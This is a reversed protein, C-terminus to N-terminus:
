TTRTVKALGQPTDPNVGLSAALRDTLLQGPLVYALPTLAEPLEITLGLARDRARAHVGGILWPRAGRVEAALTAADIAEGSPGDPRIVVMPVGPLALVMPGHMVDASSYGVAFRGCAEKLKLAVELATALNYGRSVILAHGSAAMERILDGGPGPATLWAESEAVVDALVQPVRPLAAALDSGPELQCVLRAAVALCAVYTKTAPVALEAGAHCLLVHAAIGALPSGSENTIAVTLAGGARAAETVSRVDPSEGSQSIALLLGGRWEIQARYITTVSPLALGTPIGLYAELLYQVYTAAHDSSGRAAITVWQPRARRIAQAVASYAEGDRGLAHEVIAPIEGIDARMLTTGPMGQPAKM